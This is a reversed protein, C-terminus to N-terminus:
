DATCPGNRVGLRLDRLQAQVLENPVAYGGDISQALAHATVTAMVKGQEDVIPSGSSGARVSGGFAVITTETPNQEYIDRVEFRVARDFRAPSFVLGDSRPYGIIAGSTGHRPQMNLQLPPLDLGEVSLVAVDNLADFAVLTARTQRPHAPSAVSTARHGAVVHANTVVLGPAAVWGTGSTIAGCAEGSVRLVSRAAAQVAPLSVAADDPDEVIVLPGEIAPLLGSRVVAAAARGAPSVVGLVAQMIRADRAKAGMGGDQPVLTVVVGVFWIVGLAVLANVVGGAARDVQRMWSGETRDDLADQVQELRMALAVGAVTAGAIAPIVTRLESFSALLVGVLAGIALVTFALLSILAGRRYGAFAMLLVCAAAALDIM